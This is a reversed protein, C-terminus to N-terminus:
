GRGSVYIGLIVGVAFSVSVIPLILIFLSM